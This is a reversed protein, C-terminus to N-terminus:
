ANKEEPPEEIKMEARYQANAFRPLREVMQEVEAKSFNGKKGIHMDVTFEGPGDITGRLAPSLTGLDVNSDQAFIFFQISLVTAGALANLREAVAQRLAGITNAFPTEVSRLSIPSPSLSQGTQVETVQTDNREGMEPSVMLSPESTNPSEFPEVVRVDWWEAESYLPNEGCFRRSGELGIQKATCLSKIADRLTSEATLIPFGLTKRYDNYIDRLTKGFLGEPRQMLHEEFVQRPFLSDRLYKKVGEHDFTNGIPELEVQIDSGAATQMWVFALGAKRFQDIIFSAEDRAIKEYQGSRAADAATKLLDQAALSRQAWKIIDPNQLANFTDTKPELLIIQNRYEAGQFVAARESSVLRRPSLVFRISRSDRESLDSRVQSPERFVIANSDRFLDVKWKKLAFEIADNPDVQLSRYEVRANPKEHEDFVYHDEVRQFFTGLKLLSLLTGHYSNIDVGPAVVQRALSQEAMGPLHGAPALTAILVSSVIDNVYALNRLDRLDNAACQIFTQTPDLDSLKNRIAVDEVNLHATTILDVKKHVSRVVSSLLTLAGRSGQFERGAPVNFLVTELLEPSFPYGSVCEEIYREDAGIGNQRWHNAYSQVVTEIRSRSVDSANSFLRHLIVRQRDKSDSFKVDIRPVRKLTAGPEEHSNYVSAFLTVSATETRLSEESLMQLFALNQIQISKNTISQIGRELEDLILVLHKGELAERLEDLNPMRQNSAQGKRGLEEFVLVWLSAEIPFDTFKRIFLLANNPVRCELKHQQLWKSALEQNKFLHYVLLELHSKGTGKYGELLFLGPTKEGPNFRRHLNEMVLKIDATPYTLDFFDAPRSELSKRKTDRLNEIDIVSEIGDKRLVELRPSLIDSFSM